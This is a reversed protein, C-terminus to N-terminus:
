TYNKKIKKTERLCLIIERKNVFRKEEEWISAYKKKEERYIYELIKNIGHIYETTVTFSTAELSVPDRQEAQLHEEAWLLMACSSHVM